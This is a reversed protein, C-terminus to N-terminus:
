FTANNTSAVIVGDKNTIGIVEQLLLTYDKAASFTRKKSRAFSPPDLIILDFSKEKRKAYKFYDFVDMVIIEQSEGDIGNVSFQEVTKEGSRKALDVSTTQEAGGLAAAV